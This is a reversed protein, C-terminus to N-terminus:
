PALPAPWSLSYYPSPTIEEQRFHPSHPQNRPVSDSLIVQKTLVVSSNIACPACFFISLGLGFEQPTLRVFQTLWCGVLPTIFLISSLSYLIAKFSKIAERWEATQLNLGSIIFIIIICAYSVYGGQDLYFGVFPFSISMIMGFLLGLPLCQTRAFKSVRSVSRNGFTDKVEANNGCVIIDVLRTPINAM